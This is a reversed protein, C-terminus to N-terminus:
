HIVGTRFAAAVLATDKYVCFTDKLRDIHTRVTYVSIGLIDAIEQASKGDCMLTLVERERPSLHYEM